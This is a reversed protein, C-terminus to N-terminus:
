IKYRCWPWYGFPSPAVYCVVCPFPSTWIAYQMYQYISINACEYEYFEYTHCECWVPKTFSKNKNKLGVDVNLAASIALALQRQSAVAFICLFCLALRFLISGWKLNHTPWIAFSWALVGCCCGGVQCSCAALKGFELSWIRVGLLHDISEAVRHTAGKQGDTRSHM